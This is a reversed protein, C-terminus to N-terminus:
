ASFDRMIHFKYRDGLYFAKRFEIPQKDQNLFLSTILLVPFGKEVKLVASLRDDAVTAEFTQNVTAPFIGSGEGYLDYTSFSDGSKERKRAEHVIKKGIDLPLFSDYLVFPEEDGSGLLSLRVVPATEPLGLEKAIEIDSAMSETSLITTSPKMGLELISQSFNVIRALGQRVSRRVLFTGKGHKRYLIGEHIMESLCRRVTIRSINHQTCLVRESPILEGPKLIKADIQEQLSRKLQKYLPITESGKKM